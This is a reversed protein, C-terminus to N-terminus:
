QKAYKSRVQECTSCIRDIPRQITADVNMITDRANKSQEVLKGSFEFVRSFVAPLADAGKWIAINMGIFLALMILGPILAISALLIFSLDGLVSALGGHQEDGQFAYIAIIVVATLTLIGIFILPLYIRKWELILLQRNRAIQYQDSQNM